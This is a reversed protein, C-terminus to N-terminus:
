RREKTFCIYGFAATLAIVLVLSVLAAFGTMIGFHKLIGMYEGIDKACSAPPIM